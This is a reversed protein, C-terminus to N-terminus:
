QYTKANFFLLSFSDSTIVSNKQLLTIISNGLNFM